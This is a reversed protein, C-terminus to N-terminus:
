ITDVKACYDNSHRLVYVKHDHQLRSIYVLIVRNVYSAGEKILSETLM